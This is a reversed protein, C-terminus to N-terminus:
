VRFPEYAAQEGSVVRALQRAQLEFARRCATKGSVGPLAVTEDLRADFRTLFRTLAPKSLRPGRQSRQFDDPKIERRNIVTLVISDVIIARWEEILDSALAAHGHRPQHFFGLYPDLGVVNVAAFMRNYLLTYGLSLLANVADPPPHAQRKQFDFGEAKLFTRWVQYYTAAAAGEYGLLQPLDGASDVGPLLADLRKLRRKGDRTLRRQRRCFAAANRIKGAVVARAVRLCFAGDLSRRYQRQRLTADKAGAPQLRGRYTGRSSLYAVDIGNELVYQVAPTTFGANGFVVIQDVHLAPTEHLLKGDKRVLLREGTRTVTAGQETLYLTGM